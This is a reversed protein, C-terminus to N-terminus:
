ELQTELSATKHWFPSGPLGVVNEGKLGKSCGSLFLMVSLMLLAGIGMVAKM